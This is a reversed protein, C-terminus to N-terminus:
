CSKNGSKSILKPINRYKLYINGVKNLYKLYIYRSQQSIASM